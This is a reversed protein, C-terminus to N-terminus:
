RAAQIEVAAGDGLGVPPDVVVRQGATLGSTVQVADAGEVGLSVTRRRAQTGEIVFVEARLPDAGDRVLAAPPVVLAGPVQGVRVSARAFMGGVLGASWPVEVVVAFSRTREEVLPTVRAMRGRVATGPLADVAVDVPAGVRVKTYDASPVSARFEMVSDDVVTFIPTGAALLAGPDAHRTALRGSFPARVQTRAQQQGAIATEARAQALSAEAVQLGVRAALEDKDTIGGTKLLSQAREREAVAHARNAEAVALMATARQHALRYDTEDLVALVEGRAVRAGEDKLIRLLRAPVEAVLQVQARPRLTGTLVLLDELDRRDVAVTRVPVTRTKEPEATRAAGGCGAALLAAALALTPRTRKM